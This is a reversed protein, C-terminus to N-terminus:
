CGEGFTLLRECDTCTEVLLGLGGITFGPAVTPGVKEHRQAETADLLGRRIASSICLVLEVGQESALQAWQAPLDREGQPAVATGMGNEVGRDLFFVRELQHGRACAARAFGLAARSASGPPALVLLAYNM